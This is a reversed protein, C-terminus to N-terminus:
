VRVESLQEDEHFLNEEIYNKTTRKNENLLRREYDVRNRKSTGECVALSFSNVEFLWHVTHTLTM